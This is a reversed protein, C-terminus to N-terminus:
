TWKIYKLYIHQTGFNHSMHSTPQIRSSTLLITNWSYDFFGPAFSHSRLRVIVMIFQTVLSILLITIFLNRLMILDSVSGSCHLKTRTVSILFLTKMYLIHVSRVFCTCFSIYMGELPNCLPNWCLFIRYYREFRPLFLLLM